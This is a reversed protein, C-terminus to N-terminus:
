SKTASGTLAHISIFLLQQTKKKTDEDCEGHTRPNFHKIGAGGLYWPLLDCEGHTRPNFYSALSGTPNIIQPRVGRSHTSQFVVSWRKDTYVSHDCEGHTRPNFNLVCDLDLYLPFTASGTLAHISIDFQKKWPSYDSRRM